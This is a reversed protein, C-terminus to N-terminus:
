VKEDDIPSFPKLMYEVSVTINIKKKKKTSSYPLDLILTKM